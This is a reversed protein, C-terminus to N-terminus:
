LTSRGDHCCKEYEERCQGNFRQFFSTCRQGTVEAFYCCRCCLTYDVSCETADPIVPCLRGIGRTYATGDQCCKPDVACIITCLVINYQIVKGAGTIQRRVRNPTNIDSLVIAPSNIGDYHLVLRGGVMVNVSVMYESGRVAAGTCKSSGFGYVEVVNSYSLCTLSQAM